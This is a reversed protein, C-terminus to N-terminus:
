VAEMNLLGVTKLTILMDLTWVPRWFGYSAINEYQEIKIGGDDQLTAVARNAETQWLSSSIAESAWHDSCFFLPHHWAETKLMELIAVRLVARYQAFKETGDAYELYLNIPYSYVNLNDPFPISIEKFVAAARANIEPHSKGAKGMLGAISLIRSSDEKEWWEGHPYQKVAKVPHPLDGNNTKSKLTWSLARDFIPGGTADLEVLYRLALETCIGSSEPCLIDLELGNGFGGDKNQYGALVNLVASKEGREFHYSFRLRTLLDGQRFIFSRSKDLQEATIM